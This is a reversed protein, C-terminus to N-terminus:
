VYGRSVYGYDEATAIDGYIDAAEGMAIGKEEIVHSPDVYRTPSDSLREGDHVDYGKKEMGSDM